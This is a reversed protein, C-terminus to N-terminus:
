QEEEVLSDLKKALKEVLERLIEFCEGYATLPKGYPDPVEVDSEVFESLTYINQAQGYEALLKHKQSEDIALILSDEQFNEEDVGRSVHGELTMQASKMIAEAKQNAPEPFLVVIGRSDIVYEQKLDYHRLIEAAMPALATDTGCVFTIRRYKQQKAVASASIRLHGAAKELRNMIAKGMGQVAFSESYITEVNEEDFERLVRYLNRAITKENERTGINKVIGYKYFPLTEDTAIIGIKCGKRGAEYALQRIALIEERLDGEVIVLKAKPAYHRYKMGPAKPATESEDGLLTEDVSVEGIVEELMEATVAGPRLIMPPNVTMDLITSELGIDVAGGDLIMDIKGGLDEEVHEATTPSPRGSTNASPASVFGGAARILERAVPDEPMRVAVTDLGGTTGYPVIERKDFIMTLPGPWFHAVLIDTEGPINVAIKRLEEYDAIHVILPNDSPRGKAAYTKLAAEEKLADAGLGYVTETPFAVLGGSRLVEGAEQIVTKDIQNKDIKRIKTEM